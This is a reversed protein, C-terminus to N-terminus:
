SCVEAYADLTVQATLAWTASAARVRGRERFSEPAGLVECLGRAIDSVDYPDVLSAAGGAAEETATGRSTVVPTGQAMAELVPLGFGERLSPVCLAAAEAYLAALDDPAVFGVFRVDVEAQDLHRQAGGWGLAGAVVLPPAGEIRALAAILGALNKRPEVTGVFLVFREPLAYRSRVRRRDDCSVEVCRVGLPVLRLRSPDLGVRCADDLTSQSSCLVLAARRRVIELSRRFVSVGRRTFHDPRHLFALDHLTVVLPARCPPPIITTAHVVDVDGTISEVTPRGFRLWSEYLWPGHLRRHQEVPVSEPPLWATAPPTDHRGAVGVMQPADQRAVLASLTELTAVGTGGPVRHWLHELTVAVRMSSMMGAEDPSHPSGPRDLAINLLVRRAAVV